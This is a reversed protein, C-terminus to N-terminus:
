GTFELVIGRGGFIKLSWSGSEHAVHNYLKQSQLQLSFAVTETGRRCASARSTDGFRPM